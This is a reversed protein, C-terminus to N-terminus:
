LGKSALQGSQHLAEYHQPRFRALYELVKGRVPAPHIGIVQFIHSMITNNYETDVTTTTTTGTPTIHQTDEVAVACGTGTTTSNDHQHTSFDLEIEGIEYTLADSHEQITGSGQINTDSDKSQDPLIYKVIDIDVFLNIHTKQAQITPSAQMWEAAPPLKVRLSYRTRKTIFTGFPVVGATSLSSIVEDMNTTNENFKVTIDATNHLINAIESLDTSEKYFDLGVLTEEKDSENIVTSSMPSKLELTNNRQRLWMDRTTLGFSQNDFYVDSMSIERSSVANSKCYQLIAPTCPFKREIETTSTSMNSRLSISFKLIKRGVSGINSRLIFSSSLMSIKYNVKM